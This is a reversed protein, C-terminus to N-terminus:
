GDRMTEDYLGVDAGESCELLIIERQCGRLAEQEPLTLGDLPTLDPYNTHDVGECAGFNDLVAILIKRYDIM